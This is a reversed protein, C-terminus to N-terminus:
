KAQLYCNIRKPDEAFVSPLDLRRWEAGSNASFRDADRWERVVGESNRRAEVNRCRSVPEMHRPATGHGYMNGM